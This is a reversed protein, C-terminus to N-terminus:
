KSWEFVGGGKEIMSLLDIYFSELDRAVLECRAVTHGVSQLLELAVAGDLLPSEIFVQGRGDFVCASGLRKCFLVDKCTAWDSVEIALSNRCAAELDEASISRVLRGKHLFLYRTALKQLEDLNHSSVLATAGRASVVRIADRLAMVGLPDLGNTPEDFVLLEPEGLLAAALDLRRKQGMSLKSAKRDAVEALGTEEVLREIQTSDVFGWELARVCLNDRVSLYPYSANSDPMYGVKRRLKNLRDRDSTGFLEIQGTTPMSLGNVLRILTSKGAGNAGVLGCIEGQNVSLGDISLVLDRGHRKEVNKLHIIESM